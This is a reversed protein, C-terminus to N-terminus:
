PREVLLVHSALFAERHAPVAVTGDIVIDDVFVVLSPTREGDYVELVEGPPTRVGYRSLAVDHERAVHVRDGIQIAREVVTEDSM